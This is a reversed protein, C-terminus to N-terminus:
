SQLRLRVLSHAHASLWGLLSDMGDQASWDRFRPPPDAGTAWPRMGMSSPSIDAQELQDGPPAARYLAVASAFDGTRFLELVEHCAAM